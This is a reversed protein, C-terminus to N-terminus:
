WKSKPTSTNKDPNKQASLLMSLRTNNPSELLISLNKKASKYENITKSEATTPRHKEIYSSKISSISLKSNHFNNLKNIDQILKADKELYAMVAYHVLSYGNQLPSHITLGYDNIKSVEEETKHSQKAQIESWINPRTPTEKELEQLCNPTANKVMTVITEAIGASHHARHSRESETVIELIERYKNIPSLSFFTIFLLGKPEGRYNHIDIHPKFLHQHEKGYVHSLIRLASNDIISHLTLTDPILKLTKCLFEFISAQDTYISSNIGSNLIERHIPYPTKQIISKLLPLNGKSCAFYIASELGKEENLIGQDIYFEVVETHNNSIAISIPLYGDILTLLLDHKRNKEYIDIIQRLNGEKVASKWHKLVELYEVKVYHTQLKKELKPFLYYPSLQNLHERLRSYTIFSELFNVTDQSRLTVIEGTTLFHQFDKLNSNQVHQILTNWTQSPLLVQTKPMEHILSKINNSVEPNELLTKLDRTFFSLVYTFSAVPIDDARFFNAIYLHNKLIAKEHSQLYDTIADSNGSELLRRFDILLYDIDPNHNRM